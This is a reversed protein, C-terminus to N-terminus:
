GVRYRDQVTIVYDATRLEVRQTLGAASRL